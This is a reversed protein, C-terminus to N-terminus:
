LVARRELGGVVIDHPPGPISGDAARLGGRCGQCVRINGSLVKFYFPNVNILPPLGASVCFPCFLSFVNDALLNLYFLCIQHGLYLGELLMQLVEHVMDLNQRDLTWDMTWDLTWDLTWTKYLGQEIYTVAQDRKYTVTPYQSIFLSDM